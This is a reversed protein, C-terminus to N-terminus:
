HVSPPVDTTESPPVNRKEAARMLSGLSDGDTPATALGISVQLDSSLDGDVRAKAIRAAVRVAIQQATGVDTKSLLIVFDDAGCQFLLDM